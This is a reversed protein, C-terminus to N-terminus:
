KKVAPKGSGALERHLAYSIDVPVDDMAKVRLVVQFYKPISGSGAKLRAVLMQALAPTTFAKV